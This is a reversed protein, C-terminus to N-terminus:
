AYFVSDKRKIILTVNGQYKGSWELYETKNYKGISRPYNWTTKIVNNQLRNKTTVMTFRSHQEPYVLACKKKTVLFTQRSIQKTSLVRLLMNEYKLPCQNKNTCNCFQLDPHKQQIKELTNKNHKHIEAKINPMCGQSVKITNQNFLKSFKYRPPFNKRILNLFYNGVKTKVNVSFPPNFWIVNRKRNQKNNSVNENTPRYKLTQQYGSRELAKQYMEKSANFTTENSSLTSIRKEISIPIQKLISHQHNSDKYIYLTENDPKHYPKYSSNNLILSVDLYNVIKM